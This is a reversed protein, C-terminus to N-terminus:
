GGPSPNRNSNFYNGRLALSCGLSFAQVTRSNTSPVLPPQFICLKWLTVKFICVIHLRAQTDAQTQAHYHPNEVHSATTAEVIRLTKKQAHFWLYQSWAARSQQLLINQPMGPQQVPECPKPASQCSGWSRVHGLRMGTRSCRDRLLAHTLKSLALQQCSRLTWAIGVCAGWFWLDEGNLTGKVVLIRLKSRCPSSPRKAFFLFLFPPFFWFQSSISSGPHINVAVAFLIKSVRFPFVVPKPTM